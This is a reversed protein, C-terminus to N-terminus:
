QNSAPSKKEEHQNQDVVAENRFAIHYPVGKGADVYIKAFSVVQDGGEHFRHFTKGSVLFRGKGPEDLCPLLDVRAMERLGLAETDFLLDSGAHLPKQGDGLVIRLQSRTGMEEVELSAQGFDLFLDGGRSPSVIGRDVFDVGGDFTKGRVEDRTGEAKLTM